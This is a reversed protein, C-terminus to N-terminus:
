QRIFIQTFYYEGQTNKAVGIGTLSFDGEINRRHGTSKIWGDVAQRDPNSYGQNFAVNEAAGRYSISKAITQVRANFGDHSMNRSRSMQQSHQRAQRTITANLTLTTLGKQRRYENIQQLIAQELASTSTASTQQSILIEGQFLGQSVEESEQALGAIARTSASPVATPLLPQPTLSLLASWAAAWWYAM